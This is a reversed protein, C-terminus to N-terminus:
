YKRYQADEDGNKQCLDYFLCLNTEQEFISKIVSQTANPHKQRHLDSAIKMCSGIANSRIISTGIAKKGTKRRLSPTFMMELILSASWLVGGMACSYRMLAMAPNLKTVSGDKEMQSPSLARWQQTIPAVVSIELFNRELQWTGCEQIARSNAERLTTWGDLSSNRGVTLFKLLFNTM